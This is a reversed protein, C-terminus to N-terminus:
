AAKKKELLMEAFARRAASPIRDRHGITPSPRAPPFKWTVTVIISLQTQAM